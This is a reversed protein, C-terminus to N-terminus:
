PARESQCGVNQATMGSAACVASGGDQWVRSPDRAEARPRGRFSGGAFEPYGSEAFTPLEPFDPLRQKAALALPTLLGGRIQGAAAYVPLAAFDLRGAVLDVIALAPGRYPVHLVTIGLKEAFKIGFMHGAGNAGESAFTLSQGSQRARAIFDALSKINSKPDVLLVTPGQYSQAAAPSFSSICAAIALPIFRRM